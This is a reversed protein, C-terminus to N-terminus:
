PAVIVGFGVSIGFTPGYMGGHSSRESESLAILHTVLTCARVAAGCGEWGGDPRGEGEQTFHLVQGEESLALWAVTKGPLAANRIGIRGLLVDGKGLLRGDDQVVAEPDGDPDFVRGATDISFLHEGDALVRGDPMIDFLHGGRTWRARPIDLRSGGQVWNAPPHAECAGLVMAVILAGRSLRMAAIMAGAAGPTTAAGSRFASQGPDDASHHAYGPARV